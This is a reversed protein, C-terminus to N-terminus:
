GESFTNVIGTIDIYSLLDCILCDVILMKWPINRCTDQRDDPLIERFLSHYKICIYCCSFVITLVLLIVIDSIKALLTSFNTSQSIFVNISLRDEHWQCSKGFILIFYTRTHGRTYSIYEFLFFFLSCTICTYYMNVFFCAQNNSSCNLLKSCSQMLKVLSFSWCNKLWWMNTRSCSSYVFSPMWHSNMSKPMSRRAHISNISFTCFSLHISRIAVSWVVSGAM